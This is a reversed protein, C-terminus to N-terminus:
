KHYRAKKHKSSHNQSSQSEEKLTNAASLKVKEYINMDLENEDIIEELPCNDGDRGADKMLCNFQKEESKGNVLTIACGSKGARATRGVRHIYTKIFKPCDYSIVYDIQGIDIGRALADTCVLVDVKGHTFQSLVKSRKHHIKSSLEGATLGFHRMMITLKHSNEGSKTFVLVKNMKKSTIVHYLILPKLLTDSIKIIIEKLEAPITYKGIFEGNALNTQLDTTNSSDMNDNRIIDKPQVVSTFLKPEFLNMKELKEPNQSLTASFLLKQLPLKRKMIEAVTLPGLRERGCSYVSNEVQSLWDNQIDEMIRDAEDIILFRLHSLDFGETKRLHDVIRGPTAIIIDVLSHYGGVLNPKILEAKEQSFSQQGSLLKPKLSTGECYQRFVRYVQNALDQV